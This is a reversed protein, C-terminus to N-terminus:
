KFKLSGDLIRPDDDFVLYVDNGSLAVKAVKVENNKIRKNHRYLIVINDNADKCKKYRDPLRYFKDSDFDVENIIHRKDNDDYVYIMRKSENKEIFILEENLIRPDDPFVLYKDTDDTALEAIQVQNNKIMPHRDYLVFINGDIDKCRKHDIPVRHFKKSDYEDENIFHQKDSTDFVKIKKTKKIFKLTGGLIRPDDPFVLYTDTGDTAYDAIKVKRKKVRSNTIYLQFINGDDDKCKKHNENLRFFLNPDYDDENLTHRKDDDDYAHVKKNKEIFSLTGDLIRPDDDFVLYNDIGDTAYKAVTVENDKVRINGYQLLIINGDNDRCKINCRGVKYYIEPDYDTEDIIHRKDNKDYVTIKGATIYKLEGTKLRPDDTTVHIINDNKDKAPLRGVTSFGKSSNMARNYSQPDLHVRKKKHLYMEYDDADNRNDFNKLVTYRYNNNNSKQDQIFNKDRSSSFYKKGLDDEPLLNTSRVGIYYKTTEINEILYVYNNPYICKNSM